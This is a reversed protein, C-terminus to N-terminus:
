FKKALKLLTVALLIVGGATGKLTEVLLPSWAHGMRSIGYFLLGFIALNLLGLLNDSLSYADREIEAEVQDANTITKKESVFFSLFHPYFFVMLAIFIEGDPLRATLLPPAFITTLMISFIM